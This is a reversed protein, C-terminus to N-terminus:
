QATVSEGSARTVLGFYVGPDIDPVLNTVHGDAFGTTVM